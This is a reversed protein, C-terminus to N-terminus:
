LIKELSKQLSNKQMHNLHTKVQAVLKVNLLQYERVAEDLLQKDQIGIQAHMAVQARNSLDLESTKTKYDRTSVLASAYQNKVNNNENAM